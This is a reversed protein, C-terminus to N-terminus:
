KRPTLTPDPLGYAKELMGIADDYPEAIASLSDWNDREAPADIRFVLYDYGSLPKGDYRLQEGEVTIKEKALTGEPALVVVLHMPRLRNADNFTDHLRLVPRNNANGVLESIGDALPGAYSLATSLHPVALVKRFDGLVKLLRKGDDEGKVAVLGAEIEVDGGNFPELVDLRRDGGEYKAVYSPPKGLRQALTMGGLHSM